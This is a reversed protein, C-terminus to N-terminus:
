TVDPPRKGFSFDRKWRVEQFKHLGPYPLDGREEDGYEVRHTRFGFDSYPGSEVLLVGETMRFSPDLDIRVQDCLLNAARTLELLLDELLRVHEDYEGALRHYLEPDWQEIKYFRRTIVGDPTQDSHRHFVSLFDELVNMFNQFRRELLPLKRPWIRGFIWVGCQSLSDATVVTLRPWDASLVNSTWGKWVDVRALRIWEDVYSAYVEKARQLDRDGPAWASAVREEHEQKMAILREVTYASPQDDVIKHHIKCLLILNNYRDRQEATLPSEGRPGDPSEAVMHALDGILSEDDTETADHVLSRRCEPFSCRAGAKGWLMVRTKLHIAM